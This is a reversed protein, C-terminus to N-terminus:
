RGFRNLYLFALMAGIALAFGAARRVRRRLERRRYERATVTADQRLKAYVGPEYYVVPRPGTLTYLVAFEACAPVTLGRADLQRRFRDREDATMPRVGFLQPDNLDVM